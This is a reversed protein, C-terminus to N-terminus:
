KEHNKKVRKGTPTKMARDLDWGRNIRHVLANESIGFIRAWETITRKEGNYTIYHNDRRNNQQEQNTIWRCNNPEYNGNVDKRDITLDDRYGNALAWDRFAEFSERWEPCVTIGRGGYSNYRKQNSDYCRTKTKLWIRYLRSNSYGHRTHAKSSQERNYCGCSISGGGTLNDGRTIIENGCDCKCLWAVRGRTDAREMVTLRGFRQGTLDRLKPM